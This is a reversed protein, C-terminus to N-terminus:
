IRCQPSPPKKLPYKLVTRHPTKCVSPGGAARHSEVEQSPVQPVESHSAPSTSTARAGAPWGPTPLAPQHLLPSSAAAPNQLGSLELLARLGMAAPYLHLAPPSPTPVADATEDPLQGLRRTLRLMPLCPRMRSLEPKIHSGLLNAPEQGLFLFSSLPYKGHKLVSDPALKGSVSGTPPLLSM